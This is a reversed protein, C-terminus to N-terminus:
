KVEHEKLHGVVGAIGVVQGDLGEPFRKFLQLLIRGIISEAGPQEFNGGIVADVKHPLLFFASEGNIAAGIALFAVLQGVINRGVGRIRFFLHHLFLLHHQHALYNFLQLRM